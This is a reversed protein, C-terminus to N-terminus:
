YKKKKKMCKTEKLTNLGASGSVKLISNEKQAQDEQMFGGTNLEKKYRQKWKDGKRSIKLTLIEQVKNKTKNGKAQRRHSM